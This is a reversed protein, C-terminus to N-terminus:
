VCSLNAIKLLEEDTKFILSFFLDGENFPKNQQAAHFRLFTLIEGILKGKTQTDM